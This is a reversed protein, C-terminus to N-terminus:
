FLTTESISVQSKKCIKKRTVNDFSKNTSSKDDPRPQKFLDTLKSRSQAARKLKHNKQQSRGPIVSAIILESCLKRNQINDRKHLVSVLKM